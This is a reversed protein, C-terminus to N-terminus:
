KKNNILEILEKAEKIVADASAPEEPWFFFNNKKKNLQKILVSESFYYMDEIINKVKIKGLEVLAIHGNYIYSKYHAHFLKGKEFYFEHEEKGMECYYVAKLKIIENNKNIYAKLYGGETSRDMLEITVIKCKKLSSNISQYNRNMLNIIKDSSDISATPKSEAKIVIFILLIFLIMSNKTTRKM